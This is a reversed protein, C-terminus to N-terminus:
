TGVEVLVRGRTEGRVVRECMQPVADLPITEALSTFDRNRALEAIRQWAVERVDNPCTNSDIGVLRIGRLIFPFVTTHVDAGAVLGCASICGHRATTSIIHELTTGGVSDIAGAWRASDLPRKAGTELESREIIADAGLDTLWDRHNMSGTSAVVRYGAAALSMIAFSGVGGSAGTVLVDGADPNVGADEIEMTGLMATLGATGAIMAARPDMDTPLPLLNESQVRQLQSYGGWVNEGLGWGTCLVRDGSQFRDSSTEIVEGALDIGPVFPYAGRIIKGNGTVALADKYNIASWHVRVLTDGGEPLDDPSLSRLRARPTTTDDVFLAQFHM